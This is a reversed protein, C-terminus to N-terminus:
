KRHNSYLSLFSKGNGEIFSKAYFEWPGNYGTMVQPTGSMHKFYSVAVDKPNRAVYIYKCQTDETASKPITQFPLHSKMLRPSPLTLIDPHKFISNTNPELFVVREGVRTSDVVARNYIQWVIEETWTTGLHHSSM